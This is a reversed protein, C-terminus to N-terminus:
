NFIRKPIRSYKIFSLSPPLNALELNMVEVSNKFLIPAISQNLSGSFLFVLIVSSGTSDVSSGSSDVSSGTSDISGVSGVCDM